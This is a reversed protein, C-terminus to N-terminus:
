AQYTMEPRRSVLQVTPLVEVLTINNAEGATQLSYRM